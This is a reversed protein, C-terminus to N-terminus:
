RHIRASAATLPTPTLKPSGQGPPRSGRDASPCPLGRGDISILRDTLVLTPVEMLGSRVGHCPGISSRCASADGTDANLQRCGVISTIREDHALANAATNRVIIEIQNTGSLAARSVDVVYPPAWAVGCDVGNVRVEAVVGIPPEIEARFAHGLLGGPETPTPMAVAADGSTSISGPHHGSTPCISRQGTRPRARSPWGGPNPRGSMPCTSPSAPTGTPSSFRGATGSRCAARGVLIVIRPRSRPAGSRDVRDGHGPVSAVAPRHGCRFRGARISRGTHADWEEYWGRAARPTLTTSRVTPGTNIVLYVDADATQRHM